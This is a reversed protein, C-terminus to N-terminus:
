LLIKLLESQISDVSQNADVGVFKRHNSYYDLLGQNQSRFVELRNRVVRESDDNRQVLNGHCRDCVGPSKPPIFVLHFSDGCKSCVRRGTLREILIDEPVTFNVAKSVETTSSGDLAEAQAVTRPFGDLIVKSQRAISSLCSSILEIIIGDPVLDGREVFGKAKVGVPTQDKIARRLMDGTSLHVFGYRDALLKAQTGKGSGPPGLFVITGM